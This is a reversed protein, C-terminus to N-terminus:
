RGRDLHKEHEGGQRKPMSLRICTGAENSFLLAVGYQEGFRNTLRKHVNLLGIRQTAWAADDPQGPRLMQRLEQLRKPPIPKGTNYVDILLDTGDRIAAEIRIKREGTGKLGHVLCNEVIPQLIFKLIECDAEEPGVCIRCDLTDSFRIQEIQLYAEIMDLEERLRVTEFGRINYRLVSGMSKSILQIEPVNRVEAIAEITQLSNYLFHPNIQYRLAAMQADKLMIHEELIRGTLRDIEQVMTNFGRNMERIDRCSRDERLRVTWDGREVREMARNLREIPKVVYCLTYFGLAVSGVLLILIMPVIAWNSQSFNSYLYDNPIRVVTEWGTTESACSVQHYESQDLDQLKEGAIDTDLCAVVTQTADLLDIEVGPIQSSYEALKAQMVSDSFSIAIYAVVHSQIDRLARVLLFVPKGSYDRYGTYCSPVLLFEGQQLRRTNKRIYEDEFLNRDMGSYVNLPKLVVEGDQDMLVIQASDRLATFSFIISQMMEDDQLRQLESYQPDNRRELAEQIQQNGLIIKATRDLEEIYDDLGNSVTQAFSNMFSDINQQLTRSTQEEFIAYMVLYQVAAIFCFFAVIRM